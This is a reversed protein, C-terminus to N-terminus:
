NRTSTYPIEFVEQKESKGKVASRPLENYEVETNLSDVTDRTILIQGGKALGSFRSAVNVTDGIVTFEMREPSGINGLFVEGTDIGIGIDLTFGYKDNWGENLGPLREMMQKSAEIAAVASCELPVLSGYVAVIADGIFKDISGNTAFIIAAMETFYENLIGVLKDPTKTETITTFDRIDSFLVTVVKRDGGLNVKVDQSIIQEVIQPSLYRALNTRVIEEKKMQEVFMANEIAIAGHNILTSLLEKDDGTYGDGAMKHGLGIFGTLDDQVKFPALVTINNLTLLDLIRNKEESGEAKDGLEQVSAIEELEKYDGSEVMENLTEVIKKDLGRQTIGEVVKRKNDVFLIIGGLSGFTGMVMLLLNKIIEHTDKLFGLEMSVDYVTKLHFIRRELERQPHEGGGVEKIDGKSIDTMDQKM